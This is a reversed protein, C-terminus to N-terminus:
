SAADLGARTIRWYCVRDGPGRANEVLGDAKLRRVAAYLLKSQIRNGGPLEDLMDTVTLERDANAKLLTHVFQRASSQTAATDPGSAETVAARQRIVRSQLPAGRRVRTPVGLRLHSDLYKSCNCASADLLRRETLGEIGARLQAVTVDLRRALGEPPLCVDPARGCAQWIAAFLARDGVRLSALMPHILPPPGFPM